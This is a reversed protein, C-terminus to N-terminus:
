NAPLGLRFTSGQGLQSRVVLVGGHQEAISKCISLGLGYGIGKKRQRAKSGRFFREFIREQDELPIGPGDDQVEIWYYDGSQTLNLRLQGQAPSAELANKVLNDLLQQIRDKDVWAQLAPLHPPLLLHVPKEQSLEQFRALTQELLTDLRCLEPDLIYQGQELKELLLLEETLRILREVEEHNSDLLRVFEEPEPPYSLAVQIQGKLITLPTRLEHAADSTFQKLVAFANELRELMHNMVEVLQRFEEAQHASQPLRQVLNEPTIRRATATIELVPAVAQGAIWYGLVAALVLTLLSGLTLIWLLQQQIHEVPQMTTAVQLSYHSGGLSLPYYLERYRGQPTPLTEFGPKGQLCASLLSRDVPWHLEQALPNAVVINGQADSIRILRQLEPPQAPEHEDHDHLHLKGQDTAFDAESRAIVTLGRDMSSLLLQSVGQFSCVGLIGLLLLFALVIALTLRLRFSLHSLNLRIKKFSM